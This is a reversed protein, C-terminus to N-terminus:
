SKLDQWLVVTNNNLSSRVDIVRQNNSGVWHKDPSNNEIQYEGDVLVDIYSMLESHKIEDWTNGTYLWINKDPFYKKIHKCLTLVDKVNYEYMPDGGTLTIGQCWDEKLTDCIVNLQEESFLDGNNSDWTEPNFCGNCYHNCGSLWLVVRLGTGNNMNCKDIKQYNM